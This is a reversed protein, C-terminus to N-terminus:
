LRVDIGSYALQAPVSGSKKPESGKGGKAAGEGAWSRVVLLPLTRTSPSPTLLAHAVHMAQKGSATKTMKITTKGACSSDAMFELLM